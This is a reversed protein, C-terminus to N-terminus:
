KLFGLPQYNGQLIKSSDANMWKSLITSYIRRFDIQYKLDGNDLNSLDPMSNYIGAKKLGGGLLIVNNAKGHDTGNSGNQKVRRGFESFTLILTNNWNGNEKLEEVLVKLGESYQKLLNEQRGM